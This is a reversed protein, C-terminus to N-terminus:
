TLRAELLEVASKTLVLTDRRLIDYVNAGASAMVQVAALNGAAQVLNADLDGGDIILVDSWGLTALKATLAKTKAEALAAADLIVLKGEAQKASLASRLGLARVKKTLKHEHGHVRPGHAVGGGRFQPAKRSSHRARGTGKQRWIKAGSGRIDHREKTAHNGGRRKALQWTVVRHLIDRRPTVGFVAEALEISGASKNDLTTVKAKM